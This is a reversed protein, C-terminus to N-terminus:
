LGKKGYVKMGDYNKPLSGYKIIEVSCFPLQVFATEM